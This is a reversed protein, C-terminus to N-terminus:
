EENYVFKELKAINKDTVFNEEMYRRGNEGLEKLRDRNNKFWLVTDSFSQVDNSYCWKGCRAQEEVLERVDTNKDTCAFIPISNEMYSLMRSPYNPITFRYDLIVMGIDCAKCLARYEDYPLYDLLVVNKVERMSGYFSEKQAGSGVIIFKCNTEAQIHKLASELFQLGQPAGLNGGYIFTLDDKDIGYKALLRKDKGGDKTECVSESFVANPFLEVKKDDIYNNNKLLYEINGKSMCGIKDSVKYLAIEKKRFIKYLLGHMGTTKMIGLDVANQPFIDKLMLYSKCGFKKKVYKVAGALTIPPTNYIILDFEANSFYKKIARKFKGELLVMNIGKEIFSCKTLNGIRLRLIKVGQESAFETDKNLRKERTSLVSVEHGRKKLERVIDVHVSPANLDEMQGITLFLVKM